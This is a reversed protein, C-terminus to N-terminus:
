KEREDRLTFIYIKSKLTDIQEKLSKLLELNVKNKENFFHQKVDNLTEKKM